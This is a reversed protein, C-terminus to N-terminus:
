FAFFTIKRFYREIIVSVPRVILVRNNRQYDLYKKYNRLEAIANKFWIDYIIFPIFYFVMINIAEIKRQFSLPIIEHM